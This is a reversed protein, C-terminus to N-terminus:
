QPHVGNVKMVGAFLIGVFVGLALYVCAWCLYNPWPWDVTARALFLLGGLIMAPAIWRWGVRFSVLERSVVVLAALAGATVSFYFVIFM